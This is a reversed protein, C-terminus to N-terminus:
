LELEHVKGLAELTMLINERCHGGVSLMQTVSKRVPLFGSNQRRKFEWM